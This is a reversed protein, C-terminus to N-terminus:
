ASRRVTHRCGLVAESRRRTGNTPAETDNLSARPLAVALNSLDFSSKALSAIDLGAMSNYDEVLIVVKIAINMGCAM